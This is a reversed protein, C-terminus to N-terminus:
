NKDPSPTNDQGDDFNGPISLQKVPVRKLPSYTFKSCSYDLKVMGIKECLVMNGDKSRTGYQCYSCQPTIDNRFYKLSKGKEFIESIKVPIM